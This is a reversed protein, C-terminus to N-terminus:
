QKDRILGLKACASFFARELEAYSAYRSRVRAVIIIDRGPVLRTENTRYIEKLRRRVRNRQVAKGLKTTVTVGLRNSSTGNPRYYVVLLLTAYNKGKSYIRRFEHNKKLSLSFKM